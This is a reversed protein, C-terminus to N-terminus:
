FKAVQRCIGCRCRFVLRSLVLVVVVVVRIRTEDADDIMPAAETPM